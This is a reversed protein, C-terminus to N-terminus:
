RSLYKMPNEAVGNRQVEFHLHVGTSDGTSGMYGIKEGKEVIKGKSTYIKSLHAYVTKFGNKHDIIIKNGYGDGENGAYVVVGNDAALINRNGTMDIGKHMKGWRTGFSSTLKAGVVPWVFKGTGEGKIVKTGRKAYAPVPPEIVEESVLEEEMPQGNVKTVLYTVKKLGNKGPKTIKVQGQRMTDDKEYITEHQIEENEAIKEKTVVNLTPKFVTLDLVDGVRIKDDEIWPNNDYITKRSIGFKSAICSICDGKQVTYLTQAVDGTELKKLVDDPNMVDEPQIDTMKLEVQEVFDVSQVVTEGPAPESAASLISVGEDKPVPAYKQKIRDLVDNATEKDKLVGVVKGDVILQVGVAKAKLLHNLQELAGEDDSTINFAKEPKYTVEDTNLVMHVNPYTTELEKIKYMIFNEVVEPDSVTGALQDGVYVHYVENTHMKVYQNGGISISALLGVAGFGKLLRIRYTRLLSLTQHLPRWDQMREILSVSQIKPAAQKTRGLMGKIWEKIKFSIM